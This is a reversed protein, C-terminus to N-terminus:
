GMDVTIVCGGIYPNWIDNMDTGSIRTYCGMM